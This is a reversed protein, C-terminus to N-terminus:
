KRKFYKLRTIDKVYPVFGNKAYFELANNVSHLVLNKDFFMKKICNLMTTGIKQFKSNKNINIFEPSTQLYEIRKTNKDRTVVETIGLIKEAELTKFNSTQQTLVFFRFKNSKDKNLTFQFDHLIDLIFSNPRNWTKLNNLTALDNAYNKQLEVFSVPISKIETNNNFSERKSVVASQIFSGKFNIKM